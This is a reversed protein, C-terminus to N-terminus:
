DFLVQNFLDRTVRAIVFDFSRKWGRMVGTFIMRAFFALARQPESQARSTKTLRDVEAKQAIDAVSGIAEGGAAAIAQAVDDATKAVDNVVVRAGEQGFREAVAQGIGHGAGTVLVVMGAFRRHQM